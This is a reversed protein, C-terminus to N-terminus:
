PLQQYRFYDVQLDVPTVEWSGGILGVRTTGSLGSITRTRLQVDNVYFTARDGEVVVRLTNYNPSLKIVPVDLIWPEIFTEGDTDRHGPYTYTRYRSIGFGQNANVQFTYLDTFADNAGFVIGWHAWYPEYAGANAFRGRAEVVYKNSTAGPLPAAYAPWVFWTDVNGGGRCDLRVFIRYHGSQYSVVAVKEWGGSCGPLPNPNYRRVDGTYWGSAPNDFNDLYAAPTPTPDRRVIPIFLHQGYDGRVVVNDVFAGEGNLSDDNSTFHFAVYVPTTTRAYDDLSITGSIWTGISGSIRAENCGAGPDSIDTMVCWGFWDGPASDLWWDFTLDAQFIKSLDIPGYILWSDVNDAYPNSGVAWASYSPSASRTDTVTWLHGGGGTDTVVWGTGITGSDFTENVLDQWGQPLSQATNASYAASPILMLLALGIGTVGLVVLIRGLRVSKKHRIVEDVM